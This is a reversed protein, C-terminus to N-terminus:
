GNDEWEEKTIGFKRLPHSLRDNWNGYPVAMAIETVLKRILGVIVDAVADKGELSKHHRWLRGIEDDAFNTRM